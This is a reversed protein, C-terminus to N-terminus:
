IETRSGAVTKPLGPSIKFSKTRDEFRLWIAQKLKAPNHYNIIRVGM